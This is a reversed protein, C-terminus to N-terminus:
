VWCIPTQFDHIGTLYTETKLSSSRVYELCKWFWLVTSKEQFWFAETGQSGLFGSTKRVHDIPRDRVTAMPKWSFYSGGQIIKNPGSQSIGVTWTFKSQQNSPDVTPKGCFMTLKTFIKLWINLWQSHISDDQIGMDKGHLIWSNWWQMLQWTEQGHIWPSNGMNWGNGIFEAWKAQASRLVSWPGSRNSFSAALTRVLGLRPPGTVLPATAVLNHHNITTGIILKPTISDPRLYWLFVNRYMVYCLIVYCLM